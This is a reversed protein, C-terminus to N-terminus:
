PLRLKENIWDDYFSSYDCHSIIIVIIIHGVNDLIEDM